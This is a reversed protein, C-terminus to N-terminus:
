QIATSIGPSPSPYRPPPLQNKQRRRFRSLQAPKIPLRGNFFDCAFYYQLDAIWLRFFEPKLKAMQMLGMPNRGAQLIPGFLESPDRFCEWDCQRCQFDSAAPKFEPDYFKGLNENGRYGCPYTNGDSAAVFFFDIGGRCPYSNDEAGERYASALTHLACLPSFIRIEPRFEPITDLLAQFLMEKEPASFRVVDGISTAAYVSSLATDGHANDISM